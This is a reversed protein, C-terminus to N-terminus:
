GRSGMATASSDTATAASDTAASQNLRRIGSRFMAAGFICPLVGIIVTGILLSGLEDPESGWVALGVVIGLVVIGGCCAFLAGLLTLVWAGAKSSQRHEVIPATAAVPPPEISAAVPPPAPAAGAALRQRLPVHDPAVAAVAVPPPVPPLHQEARLRRALRVAWRGEAILLAPVALLMLVILPDPSEQDVREATLLPTNYAGHLLIPIALARTLYERRRNEDFKARGVLYGMIAGLFAHAPVATVARLIAVSLGGEAVYLLNELTAFGLSVAVGYVIGDMPEDFEVHRAAYRWLVLFKFLEEPIAAVFFASAFGYVLPNQARGVWADLPWAVLAIPITILFGLGFVTWLVRHPERFADRSQFFWMLMLSPVIASVALFAASM